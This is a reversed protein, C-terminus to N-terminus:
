ATCIAPAALYADRNEEDELQWEIFNSFVTSWDDVFLVSELERATGTLIEAHVASSVTSPDRGLMITDGVDFPQLPTVSYCSDNDDGDIYANAEEVWVELSPLLLEEHKLFNAFASGSPDLINESSSPDVPDPAAKCSVALVLALVLLARKM